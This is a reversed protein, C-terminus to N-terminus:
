CKQTSWINPQQELCLWQHHIKQIKIRCQKCIYTASVHALINAHKYLAFCRCVFCLLIFYKLGRRIIIFFIMFPFRDQRNTIDWDCIPDDPTWARGWPLSTLPWRGESRQPGLPFVPWPSLTTYCVAKINSVHLGQRQYKHQLIKHIQDSTSLLLHCRHFRIFPIHKHTCRLM